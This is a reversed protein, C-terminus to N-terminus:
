WGSQIRFFSMGNTFPIEVVAMGNTVTTPQPWVQWAANPAIATSQQLLFGAHSEWALSLGDGTNTWRLQAVPLDCWNLPLFSIFVSDMMGDYYPDGTFQSRGLYNRSGRVDAPLLYMSNNVTVIRGNQYLIGERGNLVVALHTWTNTPLPTPTELAREEAAGACSIAVRANGSAAKTTLYVYRTTNSGFDFVRQWTGGGVWNVWAAFTQMQGIQTPLSVYQQSSAALRLVQGRHALNTISAGRQLTGNLTGLQDAAGNDFPYFAAWAGPSSTISFHVANTATRGSPECVALVLKCLGNTLAPDAPIEIKGMAVATLPGWIINTSTPDHHEVWWTMTSAPLPIDDYTMARGAFTITTGPAVAIGPPPWDIVAQPALLEDRTLPKGYIRVSSLMGAFYPDAGFQSRGLWVNTPCVDAMTLTMGTNTSVPSGNVYLVGRSGTLVVAVHIWTNSPIPAPSDLVQEGAIGSVTIAFRLRGNAARPTLFAYKTTDRGFDFVRQWPNGGAWNFVAVLTAANGAGAPLAVYQNTGNLTLCRGRTPDNTPGADNLILGSYQGMADRAQDDFQYVAVWDNTFAPWGDATWALKRIDLTPAGAADADYFHYSFWENTGDNHIGIHGPGIFKGTTRLFLSGGGLRMDVGAKDLYPGTIATARGVRINYTSDLGACCSGWNVFLYYYSGRRYLCSAEISTNWALHYVAPNTASRLGTAPDLQLLYIGNWYSGFSMWLNGSADFEVSPDIANFPAGNTSQIVPGLDTWKYAPDTPDLTPSTAVGIASVQSGWTSVSYYLYYRNSICIVDPAWFFGTFGPVANTTWAPPSNFVAPGALWFVGNTSWRTIIGQGTGFVYYRDKCRIIRSPDHIGLTGRLSYSDAAVVAWVIFVLYCTGLFRQRGRSRAPTRRTPSTLKPASM